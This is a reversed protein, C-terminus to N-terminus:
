HERSKFEPDPQEQIWQPDPLEIDFMGIPKNVNTEEINEAMHRHTTQETNWRNIQIQQSGKQSPNQM